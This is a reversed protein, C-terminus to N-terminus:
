LRTRAGSADDELYRGRRARKGADLMHSEGGERGGQTKEKGTLLHVVTTAGSARTRNEKGPLLVQIM